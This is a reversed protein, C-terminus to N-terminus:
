GNRGKVRKEKGKMQPWITILVDICKGVKGMHKARGMRTPPAAPYLDNGPNTERCRKATHTTVRAPRTLIKSRESALFGTFRPAFHGCTVLFTDLM